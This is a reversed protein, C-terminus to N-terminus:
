PTRSPPNKLDFNLVAGGTGVTARYPTTKPDSFAPRKAEASFGAPRPGAFVFVVAYDGPEIGASGGKYQVVYHGRADTLGRAAPKRADKPVFLVAVHPAPQAGATVTGEVKALRTPDPKSSAKSCGIAMLSGVIALVVLGGHDCCRWFAM